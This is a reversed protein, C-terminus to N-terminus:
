CHRTRRSTSRRCPIARAPQGCAISSGAGARSTSACPIPPSHRARGNMSSSRSSVGGPRSASDPPGLAFDLAYMVRYALKRRRQHSHRRVDLQAAIDRQWSGLATAEEAAVQQLRALARALEKTVEQGGLRRLGREVSLVSADLLEDVLVAVALAFCDRDTGPTAGLRTLTPTRDYRALFQKIAQKLPPTNPLGDFRARIYTQLWTRPPEDFDVRGAPPPDSM